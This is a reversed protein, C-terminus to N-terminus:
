LLVACHANNNRVFGRTLLFFPLKKKVLSNELVKNKLITACIETSKPSRAFKHQLAHPNLKVSSSKFAAAAKGETGPLKPGIKNFIFYFKHVLL